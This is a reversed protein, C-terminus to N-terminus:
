NCNGNSQEPHNFKVERNVLIKDIEEWSWLGMDKEPRADIGVDMARGPLAFHGHCHGYLHYAGYHMQDWSAIPFHFMVIKKKDLHITKYDQVSEFLEQLKRDSQIVKDHNGYILHKKGNLRVLISRTQEANGFSVDGLIYVRDNQAVQSNWKAVMLRNMEEVDAGLRTGADAQFKLINKHFFHLDSTFWVRETM